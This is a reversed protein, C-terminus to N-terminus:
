TKTFKSKRREKEEKRLRLMEDWHRPKSLLEQREVNAYVCINRDMEMLDKRSVNFMNAIHTFTKAHRILSWNGPFSWTPMRLNLCCKQLEFLTLHMREPRSNSGDANKGSIQKFSDPIFIGWKRLRYEYFAEELPDIKNNKSKPTNKCDLRPIPHFSLGKPTTDRLFIENRGHRTCKTAMLENPSAITHHDEIHWEAHSVLTDCLICKFM